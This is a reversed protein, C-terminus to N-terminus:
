MKKTYSLLHISSAGFSQVSLLPRGWFHVVIDKGTRAWSKKKYGQKRKEYVKRAISAFDSPTM